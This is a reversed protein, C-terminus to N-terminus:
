RVVLECPVNEEFVESACVNKLLQRTSRRRGYSTTLLRPASLRRPARSSLSTFARISWYSCAATPSLCTEVIFALRTMCATSRSTSVARVSVRTV